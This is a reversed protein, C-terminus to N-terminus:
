NEGTEEGWQHRPALREGNFNYDAGCSCTNTFHLCEVEQGCDCTVVTYGKHYEERTNEKLELIGEGCSTCTKGM